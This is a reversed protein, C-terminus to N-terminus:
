RLCNLQVTSDLAELYVLTRIRESFVEVTGGLKERDDALKIMCLLLVM